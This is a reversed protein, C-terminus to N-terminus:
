AMAVLLLSAGLAVLRLSRWADPHRLFLAAGILAMAISPVIGLLQGWWEAPMPETQPRQSWVTWLQWAAVLLFPVTWPSIATLRDPLHPPRAEEWPTGDLTHGTPEVM